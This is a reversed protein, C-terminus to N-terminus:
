LGALAVAALRRGVTRAVSFWRRAVRVVRGNRRRREVFVLHRLRAIRHAHVQALHARDRQERALALDLDGLPDLGAFAGHELDDDVRADADGLNERNALVELAALDADLVDDLVEIG